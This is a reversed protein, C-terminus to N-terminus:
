KAAVMKLIAAVMEEDQGWYGHHSKGECPDGESDGGDLWVIDKVKPGAWAKFAEVGIPKTVHCGDQAHHMIYTPPLRDPSGLIQEVNVNSGSDYALLGSTLILRDPKAGDRIGEAARQTGRSTGIVTVPKQMKAMVDIPM